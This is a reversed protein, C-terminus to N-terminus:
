CGLWYPLSRGTTRSGRSGPTWGTCLRATQSSHRSRGAASILGARMWTLSTSLSQGSLWCVPDRKQLIILANLSDVAPGGGINLLHLPVRVASSLAPFLGDALLYALDQLRLRMALGSISGAIQRDIDNAFSGLNAPGLKLLYTDMGSMFGGAAAMIGRMIVSRRSMLRLLLPQLLRSLVGQRKTNRQYDQLLRNAEGEGPDVAFAPHTVDVVPLELGDDTLAQYIGPKKNTESIAPSM